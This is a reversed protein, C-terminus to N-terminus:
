VRSRFLSFPCGWHSEENPLGPQQPSNSNWFLKAFHKNSKRNTMQSGLRKQIHGVYEWKKIVFDKGYPKSKVCITLM